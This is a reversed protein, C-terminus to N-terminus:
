AVVPGGIGDITGVRRLALIMGCFMGLIRSTVGWYAYCGHGRFCCCYICSRLLSAIDTRGVRDNVIVIMQLTRIM